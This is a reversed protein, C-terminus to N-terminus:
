SRPIFLQDDKIAQLLLSIPVGSLRLSGLSYAQTQQKEQEPSAFVPIVPTKKLGFYDHKYCGNKCGTAGRIM